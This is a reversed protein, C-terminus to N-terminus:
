LMFGISVGIGSFKLASESSASTEIGDVKTKAFSQTMYEVGVYTFRSMTRTLAISMGNAPSSYAVSGGNAQKNELKYNASFHYKGFLAYRNWYLGLVGSAQTLEGSTNVNRLKGPDDQQFWKSIGAGGGLFLLSFRYGLIASFGYAGMDRAPTAAGDNSSSRGYMGEAGLRAAIGSPSSGTQASAFEVGVFFSATLVFVFIKSRM